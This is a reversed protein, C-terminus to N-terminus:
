DVDADPDLFEKQYEERLSVTKPKSDAKDKLYVCLLICFTIISLILLVLAINPKKKNKKDAM